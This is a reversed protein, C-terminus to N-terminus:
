LLVQRLEAHVEVSGGDDDWLRLQNCYFDLIWGKIRIGSGREQAGTLWTKDDSVVEVETDLWGHHARDHIRWHKVQEGSRFEDFIEVDFGWKHALSSKDVIREDFEVDLKWSADTGANHLTNERM